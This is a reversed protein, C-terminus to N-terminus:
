ESDRLIDKRKDSMTYIADKSNPNDSTVLWGKDVFVGFTTYFGSVDNRGPSLERLASTKTLGDPCEQYLGDIKGMWWDNIEMQRESQNEHEVVCSTAGDLLRVVRIRLKQSWRPGDKVKTSSLTFGTTQEPTQSVSLVDDVNGEWASAGRSGNEANKGTHHVLLVTGGIADRLHDLRELVIAADSNSNEELGTFLSSATDLVVLGCGRDVAIDQVWRLRATRAQPDWLSGPPKWVHFNSLDEDTIDQAWTSRWAEVRRSLGYLGEKVVFLVPTPQVERGIWKRGTALSLGWSLSIFSKGINRPGILSTVTHKSLVGEIMHEPVPLSALDGIGLVPTPLEALRASREAAAVSAEGLAACNSCLDPREDRIPDTPQKCIICDIM